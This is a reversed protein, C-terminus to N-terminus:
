AKGRLIREAKLLALQTKGDTLTGDYVAKLAKEFPMKVIDIFEGEDPHSQGQSLELALYIYTRESDYAPTAEMFGLPIVRGAKLGLEESLERLACTEPNEGKELKGACIETLVCGAGSRFQRVLTINGEDDVPLIGAGGPHLVLERSATSGDELEVSDLAATFVKGEYIINRSLTKESLHM